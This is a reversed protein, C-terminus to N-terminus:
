RDKLQVLVFFQANLMSEGISRVLSIKIKGLKQHEIKSQAMFAM